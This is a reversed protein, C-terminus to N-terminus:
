ASLVTVWIRVHTHLESVMVFMDAIISVQERCGYMRSHTDHAAQSRKETNGLLQHGVFSTMVFGPSVVYSPHLSQLGLHASSAMSYLPDSHNDYRCISFCIRLEVSFAVTLMATQLCALQPNQMTM